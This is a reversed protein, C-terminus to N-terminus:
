KENGKTSTYGFCLTWIVVLIWLGSSEYGNVELYITVTLLGIYAIAESIYKM